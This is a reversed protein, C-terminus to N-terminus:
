DLFYIDFGPDDWTRAKAPAMADYPDFTYVLKGALFEESIMEYIALVEEAELLEENRSATYVTFGYFEGEVPHDVHVFNGAYHKRNARTLIMEMYKEENLDPFYEAFVLALFYLHIEYRNVNQFVLPLLEPDKGAPATYKTVRDSYEFLRAELSIVEFEAASDVRRLCAPGKPDGDDVCVQRGGGDGCGTLCCVVLCFLILSKKM